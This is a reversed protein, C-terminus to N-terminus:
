TTERKREPIPREVAGVLEYWVSKKGDAFATAHSDGPVYSPHSMGCMRQLAKLFALQQVETAKGANMAKVSHWELDTLATM